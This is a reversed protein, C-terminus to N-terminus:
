GTGVLPIKEKCGVVHDLGVRRNEGRSTERCIQASRGPNGVALVEAYGGRGPRPPATPPAM